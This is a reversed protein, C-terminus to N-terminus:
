NKFKSNIDKMYNNLAFLTCSEDNDMIPLKVYKGNYRIKVTYRKSDKYLEFEIHSTYCPAEDLPIGLTGMIGLLTLDHGYYYTMKYHSKDAVM